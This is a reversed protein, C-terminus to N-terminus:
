ISCVHKSSRVCSSSQRTCRWSKRRAWSGARESSTSRAGTSRQSRSRRRARGNMSRHGLYLSRSRCALRVKLSVTQGTATWLRPSLARPRHALLSALARSRPRLSPSLSLNVLGAPPVRHARAGVPVLARARTARPSRRNLSATGPTRSGGLPARLLHHRSPRLLIRRSSTSRRCLHSRPYTMTTRSRIRVLRQEPSLFRTPPRRVLPRRAPHATSTTPPSM